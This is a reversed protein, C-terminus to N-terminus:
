FPGRSEVGSVRACEACCPMLWKSDRKIEYRFYGEPKIKHCAACTFGGGELVAVRHELSEVRQIVEDLDHTCISKM